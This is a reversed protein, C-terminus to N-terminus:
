NGTKRRRGVIKIAEIVQSPEPSIGLTKRLYEKLPKGADSRLFTNAKSKSSESRKETVGANKLCDAFKTEQEIQYDKEESRRRKVKVVSKVESSAAERRTLIKKDQVNPQEAKPKEGVKDQESTQLAKAEMRAILQGLEAEAPIFYSELRKFDSEKRLATELLLCNPMDSENLWAALKAVARLIAANASRLGTESLGTRLEGGRLRKVLDLVESPHKVFSEFIRDEGFANDWNAKKIREAQSELVEIWSALCGVIAEANNEPLWKGTDRLVMVDPSNRSWLRLQGNSEYIPPFCHKSHELWVDALELRDRDVEGFDRERIAEKILLVLRISQELSGGTQSANRRDIQELLTDEGEDFCDVVWDTLLQFIEIVDTVNQWRERADRLVSYGKPDEAHEEIPVWLHRRRRYDYWRNRDAESM